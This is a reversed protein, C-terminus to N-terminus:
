VNEDEVFSGVEAAPAEAMFKPDHKYTNMFNEMDYADQLEKKLFVQLEALAAIRKRAMKIYLRDENIFDEFYNTDNAWCRLNAKCSEIDEHLTTIEDANFKIARQLLSSKSPM